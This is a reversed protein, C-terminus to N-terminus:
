GLLRPRLTPPGALAKGRAVDGSSGPMEVRNWSSCLALPTMGNTGGGLKLGARCAMLCFAFKTQQRDVALLKDQIAGWEAHVCGGCGLPTRGQEAKLSAVAGEPWGPLSKDVTM